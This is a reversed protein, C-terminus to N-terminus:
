LNLITDLNVENISLDEIESKQSVCCVYRTDIQITSFFFQENEIESKGDIIDFSDLSVSLGRGDAKLVAEKNTWYEFFSQQSDEANVVLSWERPTMHQKFSCIDVDSIMEIDVGLETDRAVACVVVDGSHSINFHWPSNEFYPKGYKTCRIKPIEVELKELINFLLIRGLMTAQADQWRMFRGIRNQFDMSFTHLYRDKIIEHLEASLYCYHVRTM